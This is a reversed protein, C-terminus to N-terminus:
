MIECVKMVTKILNNAEKPNPDESIIRVIPETNSVRAQIWSKPFLIKIGDGKIPKGNPFQEIIANYFKTL